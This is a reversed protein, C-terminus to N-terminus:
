EKRNELPGVLLSNRMETESTEKTYKAVTASLELIIEPHIQLFTREKTQQVSM